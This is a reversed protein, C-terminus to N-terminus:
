SGIGLVGRIHKAYNWWLSLKESDNPLCLGVEYELIKQEKNLVTQLRLFSVRKDVEAARLSM